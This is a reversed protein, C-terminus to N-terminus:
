EGSLICPDPILNDSDAAQTALADCRENQAHGNHGRVWNWTIHHTECARLLRQWLDANKVPESKSLMWNKRIWKDIWHQNFANILYQSDSWLSVECPRNLAELAAIAAMLEMRNNTTKEYGQSLEKVHLQGMSDVFEILAGYGGPGPNGRSSGDTYVTVSTM